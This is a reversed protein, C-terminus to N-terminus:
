NCGPQDSDSVPFDDWAEWADWGKRTLAFWLQEAQSFTTVEGDFPVIAREERSEILPKVLGRAMLQKLAGYVEEPEFDRLWFVEV